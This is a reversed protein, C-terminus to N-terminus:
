QKEGSKGTNKGKSPDDAPNVYILKFPGMGHIQIESEGTFWAYHHMKAPMTSFGGAALAVGKSENFEDGMGVHFTGSLVTVHETTPHWHPSVRYGDGAKVRVTFPGSKAPDGQLVALKAGPLLNPPPDGWQIDGPSLDVHRDAKSASTKRAAATPTKEQARAALAATLGLVALSLLAHKRM